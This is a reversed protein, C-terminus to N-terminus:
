LRKRIDMLRSCFERETLVTQSTRKSGMPHFLINNGTDLLARKFNKNQALSNFAMDLLDQYEDSDRFYEIGQWYLKQTKWWKKDKGKLKADIGVLSCVHIQENPNKFKLSQLFGEMSACKIGGVVFFHPSFNSLAGSPYPLRSSIIM